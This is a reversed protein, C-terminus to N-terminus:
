HDRRVELYKTKGCESRKPLQGIIDHSGGGTGFSARRTDSQDSIAQPSIKPHRVNRKSQRCFISAQIKARELDLCPALKVM